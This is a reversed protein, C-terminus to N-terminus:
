RSKAAPHGADIARLSLSYGNGSYENDGVQEWSEVAPSLELYVEVIVGGKLQFLFESAHLVGGFLTVTLGFCALLKKLSVLPIM